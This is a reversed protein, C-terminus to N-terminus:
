SRRLGLCRLVGDVVCGILKEAEGGHTHPLEAIDRRTPWVKSAELFALADGDDHPSEFKGDPSENITM